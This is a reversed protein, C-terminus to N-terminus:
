AATTLDAQLRTLLARLAAPRVPKGLLFYRRSAAEERARPTADATIVIGPITLGWAERLADGFSTGTAGDDLHYDVVLVDPPEDGALVAPDERGTATRVACGWGELLLRMGHLVSPENEVVLVLLGDIPTRAPAPDAPPTARPLAAGRPVEIWFASGRGVVSRLGIPHALRRAIRDAIALGLGLGRSGEEDQSSLRRFEEFIEHRRAAEIGPGTDLVEVRVKGARRRVGILVKGSRTYRIANSVFNQIVRRLLRPDSDVIATTPVFRLAIGRRAAIPGFETVLRELVEDLAFSERHVSEAGADLRSIDLLGSLLTEASSLSQEIHRVRTRASAADEIGDFTAAFLRAAHIPQALDHTAAALFRTKAADAREAASKADALATNLATLEVTRAAVRAELTENAAMLERQARKYATVDSYTTVFGGGPIPNGRIEVVSGDPLEREHQYARQARMHDLRRVIADDRPDPGLWGRRANFRILEEIPRGVTVLADPYEFLELYRRNWAVLRLNADVVSVGQSLHELTARLRSDSFQLAHSTEDLLHIVAEAPLDRGRLTRSLILRASTSGLAGSLLHETHRAFAAPAPESGSPVLGGGAVYDAVFASTRAEGFFRGLLLRLEDVSADLRGDPRSGAAPTDTELFRAAQLRQALGPSHRLSVAVFAAVNAALSVLAGHTLPDVGAIGFLGHPRLWGIGWPGQQFLADMGPSGALAAPLLLTYAWTAYGACLGARAGAATSGRWFLGLLIAPAFQSVASFSLLGISALSGSAAFLHEYFYALAVTAGICIRRVGILVGALEGRGALGLAPRALLIPMVVENCLMTALAVCAVIVMSSAACMGGIFALVALGDLGASRPLAIVFTDPATGPATAALGAAAIPLVFASIAALYAPFLWRALKLDAPDRHEVVCFLFQRPLCLMALAALVTQTAFGAQWDPRPLTGAVQPLRHAASYADGFGDFVGWVAYVGVALFAVLKILSDVAIALVMGHHSEGATLHRAGFLMAFLALLVALPFASDAASGPASVAMLDVSLAVAKLQLAIYPLVGFLALLTVLMALGPSRGFRAGIFDALSTVNHRKSIAIVRALLPHGIAFMLIPGLYIPLFDWGSASARGVAGYFTWSTCYVGLALSYVWPPRRGQSTAARRDGWWAVGFLLAMCAICLLYLSWGAFM